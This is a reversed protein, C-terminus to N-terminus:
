RKKSMHHSFIHWFLIESINYCNIPKQRALFLILIKNSHNLVDIAVNKNVKQKNAAYCLLFITLFDTTTWYVSRHFNTVPTQECFSTFENNLSKPCQRREIKGYCGSVHRDLSDILKIQISRHRIHSVAHPTNMNCSNQISENRFVDHRSGHSCLLTSLASQQSAYNQAVRGMSLICPPRYFYVCLRKQM